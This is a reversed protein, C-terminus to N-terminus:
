TTKKRELDFRFVEVKEGNRHRWEQVLHDKDKFTLTLGEMHPASANPLNTIDYMTFNMSKADGEGRMRPQNGEACYHTLIVKGGDPHYVTLMSHPTGADMRELLATGGAVLEYTIATGKGEKGVEQWDGVLSKLADFAPPTAPVAAMKHEEGAFCPVAVLVLLLALVRKM